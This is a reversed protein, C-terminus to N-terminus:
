RSRAGSRARKIARRKMEEAQLAAWEQSGVAPPEELWVDTRPHERVGYLVSDARHDPFGEEHDDRDDNWPLGDWEDLLEGARKKCVRLKNMRLLGRVYRIAAGKDTKAAPYFPLSYDQQLDKMITKGLGGSDVVMRNINPYRQRIRYVEGAIQSTTLHSKGFSEEIYIDGLGRISTSVTFAADDDYGLDVSLVRFYNGNPLNGDWGHAQDNYHYILKKLDAIWIGEYERLWTPDDPEFGLEIRKAELAGPLSLKHFPNNKVSWKHTVWKKLREHDGTTRAYFYGKPLLGPTGTLWLDGDYDSLAADLVNDILYELTEAKHTGGEDIIVRPYKPGRFKEAAENKDKCGALWIAGGQKSWFRGGQSDPTLGLGWRKNMALLENWLIDKSTKSTLTIYPVLAEPYAEIADVLGAADVTSKGARRTCLACKRKAPDEFFAREESFLMTRWPTPDRRRREARTYGLTARM